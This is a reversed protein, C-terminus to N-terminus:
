GRVHEKSVHVQYAIHFYEDVEAPDAHAENGYVDYDIQKEHEANLTPFAFEAQFFECVMSLGLIVEEFSLLSDFLKSLSLM